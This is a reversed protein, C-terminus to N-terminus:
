KLALICPLLVQLFRGLEMAARGHDDELLAVLARLLLTVTGKVGKLRVWASSRIMVVLLGVILAIIRASRGLYLGRVRSPRARAPQRASGDRLLELSRRVLLLSSLHVLLLPDM